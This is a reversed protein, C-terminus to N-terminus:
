LFRPSIVKSKKSPMEFNIVIEHSGGLYKAHGGGVDFSYGVKFNNNIYYQFLFGPGYGSRVFLGFWVKKFLFANLNIDAMGKGSVTKLMLTPAFIFNENILFSKGISLFNHTRLRYSIFSNNGTEIKFVDSAFLHTNSLGIFFSNSRFYLGSNVDFSNFTQVQSFDITNENQKYTLKNFNFAYRNLGASLGFSLKYKNNLKLIYAFNGYAGTLNRPGMVDNYLTLGIGINRNLIPSHVGAAITKPAGDFGVWQNRVSATASLGDRAGAYAPNIVLPNFQYTSYQPDQQAFAGTNLLLLLIILKKM